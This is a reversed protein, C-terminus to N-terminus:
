FILLFSPFDRGVDVRTDGTADDGIEFAANAGPHLKPRRLMPPRIVRGSAVGAVRCRM